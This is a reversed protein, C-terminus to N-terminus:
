AEPDDASEDDERELDQWQRARFSEGAFHAWVLTVAYGALFVGLGIATSKLVWGLTVAVVLSVVIGTARTGDEVAGSFGVM